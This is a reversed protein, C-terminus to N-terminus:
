NILITGSARLDRSSAGVALEYSGRRLRWQQAAVDWVSLDRRTLPFNATGSERPQLPLREFGRLQRIPTDDEPVTIYLQAVEHAYVDGINSFTISVEFLTDWLQPHGGQVIRVDVSPYEDINGGLDTINLVTGYEFESYSLGFGFEFRPEIGERDFHRYDIFLGETFDSQPFYDLSVSGNIVEPSGYDSEQKAITYPLRGSPSVDGYLVQALSNGSEQGPLGAFLVATVNPNDIWAEVLRIGASHVIVITNTCNAAVNNVLNDSFEDTLNVRDFSESAYSNIFVLCAEANVYAPSPNESYFDWRLNGPPTQSIVRDQIAQFPSIVYPPTSGGSGGGTIMTGNFTQWGFNVEYGGGYRSPNQWPSPSVQADYGYINLFQPNRLPLTNNVNKVLVTGAAGIERILSRHNGQVNVPLHKQTSSYITPPPYTEDQDLYYFAALQRAVMDNLREVTVTGNTVAETLNEGWYGADPM